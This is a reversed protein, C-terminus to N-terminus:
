LADFINKCITFDANYFVPVVPYDVLQQITQEQSM